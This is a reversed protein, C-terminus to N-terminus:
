LHSFQPQSFNSHQELHWPQLALAVPLEGWKVELGPSVDVRSDEADEQPLPRLSTCNQIGTDPVPFPSLGRQCCHTPQRGGALGRPGRCGQNRDLGVWTPHSQLATAEADSTCLGSRCLPFAASSWPVLCLRRRESVQETEGCPRDEATIFLTQAPENDRSLVHRPESRAFGPMTQPLERCSGEKRWGRHVGGQGWREGEQWWIFCVCACSLCPTPLGQLYVLVRLLSITESQLSRQPQGTNAWINEPEDACCNHCPYPGATATEAPSPHAHEARASHTRQSCRLGPPCM